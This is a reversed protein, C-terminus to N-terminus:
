ISKEKVIIQNPILLNVYEYKEIPKKQNQNIFNILKQTHLDINDLNLKITTGKDTMYHIEKNNIKIQLISHYLSHYQNFIKILSNTINKIKNHDKIDSVLIPVPFYNLAKIDAEIKNKKYDYLYYKSEQEFLIIPTIENIIIHINSPFSTYIKSSQIFDHENIINKLKFININLLNKDKLEDDIIQTLEQKDIFKNNQISINKIDFVRDKISFIILNILIIISSIIFIYNVIKEINIKKM